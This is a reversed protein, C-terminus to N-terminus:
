SCLVELNGLTRDYIELLEDPSGRRIIFSPHYLPVIIIDKPGDGFNWQRTYVHGIVNGFPINDELGVLLKTSIGGVSFIVDPQVFKMKWWLFKKCAAISEPTPTGNLRNKKKDVETAPPMCCQVNTYYSDKDLDYKNTYHRLLKGAKGIFPKGQRNEDKGFGEGIFMYKAPIKGSGVDRFGEKSAMDCATCSNILKIMGMYEQRLDDTPIEILAM